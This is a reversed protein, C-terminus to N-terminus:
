ETIYHGTEEHSGDWGSSSSATYDNFGNSVEKAIIELYQEVSEILFSEEPSICYVISGHTRILRWVNFASNSIRMVVVEKGNYSGRLHIDGEELLKVVSPTVQSMERLKFYPYGAQVSRQSFSQVDLTLTKAM